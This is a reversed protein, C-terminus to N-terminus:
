VACTKNTQVVQSDNIPIALKIKSQSFKSSKYEVM